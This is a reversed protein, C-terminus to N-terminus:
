EFGCGASFNRRSHFFATVTCLKHSIHPILLFTASDHTHPPPCDEFGEQVKKGCCLLCLLDRTAYRVGSVHQFSLREVCSKQSIARSYPCAWNFNPGRGVSLSIWKAIAITTLRNIRAMPWRVSISFNRIVM